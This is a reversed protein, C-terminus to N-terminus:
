FLLFTGGGVLTLCNMFVYDLASPVRPLTAYRGGYIRTGSAGIRLELAIIDNRLRTTAARLEQLPSTDSVRDGKAKLQDKM